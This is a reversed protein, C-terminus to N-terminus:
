RIVQRFGPGANSGTGRAFVEPEVVQAMLCDAAEELVGVESVSFDLFDGTVAGGLHQLAIRVQSGSRQCRPQPLQTKFPRQAM